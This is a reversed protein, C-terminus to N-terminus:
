NKKTPPTKMLIIGGILDYDSLHDYQGINDYNIEPPKSNHVREYIEKLEEISIKKKNKKM